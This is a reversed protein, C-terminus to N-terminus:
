KITKILKRVNNPDVFLRQLSKAEGDTLTARGRIKKGPVNFVKTSVEDLNQEALEKFSPKEGEKITIINDIDTLLGEITRRTNILSQRLEFDM